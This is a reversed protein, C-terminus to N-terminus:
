GVFAKEVVFTGPRANSGEVLGSAECLARTEALMATSGCVMVRDIAPDFPQGGFPVGRREADRAIGLREHLAGSRALDTVRGAMAGAMPAERTVTPVLALRGDIVEALMADEESAGGEIARMMDRGYTLEANERVTHVIVGSRFREWTEPARAVSAFPALGTGTALMWLRGGPELADAVLTGTSKSRMWLTDGSKVRVLRSTLPGGPVAISLFEITDAWAPSAISYARWVPREGDEPPLAIMVFEGARFRFGSPRGVRLRFLRDTYHEVDTVRLAHAGKPATATATATATAAPPPSPIAVRDAVTGDMTDDKLM